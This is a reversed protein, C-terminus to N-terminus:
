LFTAALECLKSVFNLEDNTFEKLRTPVTLYLIGKLEKKYTVPISIVSQWDPM